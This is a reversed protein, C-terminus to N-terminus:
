VVGVFIMWGREIEWSGLGPSAVGMGPLKLLELSGCNRPSREVQVMRAEWVLV